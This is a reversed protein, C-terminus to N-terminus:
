SISVVGAVVGTQRPVFEDTFFRHGDTADASKKFLVEEHRFGSTGVNFCDGAYFARIFQFASLADFDSGEPDMEPGTLFTSRGKAAVTRRVAVGALVCMGDAM